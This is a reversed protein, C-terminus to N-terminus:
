RHEGGHATDISDPSFGPQRRLQPWRTSVWRYMKVTSAPIGIYEAFLGLSEEVTFLEESQGGISGGHSRLPEIELAGVKSPM